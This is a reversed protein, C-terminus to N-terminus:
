CGPVEERLMNAVQASHPNGDPTEALETAVGSVFEGPGADQTEKTSAYQGFCSSELKNAAAFAPVASLLLM